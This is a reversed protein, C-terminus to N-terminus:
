RREIQEIIDGADKAQLLASTIAEVSPVGGFGGDEDVYLQRVTDGGAEIAKKIAEPNTKKPDYTVTVKRSRLAVQVKEIGVM